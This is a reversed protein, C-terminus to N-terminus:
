IGVVNRVPGVEQELDYRMDVTRRADALQDFVVERIDIQLAGPSSWSLESQEGVRQSRKGLQWHQFDNRPDVDDGIERKREALDHV